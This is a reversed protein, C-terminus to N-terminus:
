KNAFIPKFLEKLRMATYTKGTLVNGSLILLRHNYRLITKVLNEVEEPYTQSRTRLRVMKSEAPISLANPFKTLIEKYRYFIALDADSKALYNGEKNRSTINLKAVEETAELHVFIPNFRKFQNFIKERYDPRSPRNLNTADFVVISSQKKHLICRALWKALNYTHTNEWASYDPKGDRYLKRVHDSSIIVIGQEESFTCLDIVRKINGLIEKLQSESNTYPDMEVRERLLELCLSIFERQPPKSKDISLQFVIDNGNVKLDRLFVPKQVESRKLVDQLLNENLISDKSYISKKAQMFLLYDTFFELKVNYLLRRTLYNRKEEDVVDLSYPFPTTHIGLMHTITNIQKNPFKMRKLTNRIINEKITPFINPDTESLASVQHFLSVFRLNLSTNMPLKEILKLTIEVRSIGLETIEQMNPSQFEPIVHILLGSKYMLHLAEKWYEGVMLKQLETQIREMAVLNFTEFHNQVENFTQDDITYGLQSIFRFIRILRLGDEELRRAPTGVLRVIMNRIDNVGNFPDILEETIPNYAIANITLDRRSLDEKIDSVFSVNEPHRGDLYNGEIRFTTIEITFQEFLLTVTGHKLGTPIVRYEKSFISIVESPLADTALDWDNPRTKGRLLDRISGGVLFVQFNNSQFRECVAHIGDPINNPSLNM